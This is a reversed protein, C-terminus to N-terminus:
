KKANKWLEFQDIVSKEQETGEKNVIEIYLRISNARATASTKPNRIDKELLKLMQPIELRTSDEQLQKRWEYYYTKISAISNDKFAKYALQIPPIYNSDMSLLKIENLLDFVQKRLSM